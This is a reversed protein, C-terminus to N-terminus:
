FSAGMYGSFGGIIAAATFTIVANPQGSLGTFPFLRPIKIWPAAYVANWDFIGLFSSVVVGVIVVTILIFGQSVMGKTKFKLILALLVSILALVLSLPEQRSFTWQVAIRAEVFGIATVVSGVVVPPLFARVKSVTKTIGLITQILGGILSAGWVAPLGYVAAINGMSSMLASSSGQVIPLRNGVTTQLFTCIGMCFFCACLLTPVFDPQDIGALSAFGAAWMFPTFDVLTIQLAFLVAKWCPKPVDEIGYAIEINSEPQEEFVPQEPNYMFDRGEWKLDEQEKNFWLYKQELGAKM